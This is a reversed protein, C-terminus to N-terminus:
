IENIQMESLTDTNNIHIVSKCTDLVKKKKQGSCHLGKEHRFDIHGVQSKIQRDPGKFSKEKWKRLIKVGDNKVPSM